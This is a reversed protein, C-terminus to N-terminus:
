LIFFLIANKKKKSYIGDLKFSPKVFDNENYTEDVFIYIETTDLKPPKFNFEIPEYLLQFFFTSFYM